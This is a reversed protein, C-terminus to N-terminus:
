PGGFYRSSDLVQPRHRWTSKEQGPRVRRCHRYPDVSGEAACHESNVRLCIEDDTRYAVALHSLGLPGDLRIQVLLKPSLPAGHQRVLSPQPWADYPDTRKSLTHVCTRQRFSEAASLNAQSRVGVVFGSQSIM